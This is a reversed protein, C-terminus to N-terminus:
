GGPPEPPTQATSPEGEGPASNQGQTCPGDLYVRLLRHYRDWTDLDWPQPHERLFQELATLPDSKEDAM